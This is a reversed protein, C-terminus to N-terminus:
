GKDANMMREQILIRLHEAAAYINNNGEEYPPPQVLHMKAALEVNKKDLNDCYFRKLRNAYPDPGGRAGVQIPEAIMNQIRQFRSSTAVGSQVRLKKDIM